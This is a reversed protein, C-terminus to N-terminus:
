PETRIALVADDAGDIRPALYARLPGRIQDFWLGADEPDADALLTLAQSVEACNAASLSNLRKAGNDLRQRAAVTATALFSNCLAQAWEQAAAPHEAMRALRFRACRVRLLAVDAPDVASVRNAETLAQELVKAAAGFDQRQELLSALAECAALATNTPGLEIRLGMLHRQLEVRNLGFAMLAEDSVRLLFELARCTRESREGIRELIMLARRSWRTEVRELRRGVAQWDTERDYDPKGPEFRPAEALNLLAQAERASSPCARHLIWAETQARRLAQPFKPELGWSPGDLADLLALTADVHALDPARAAKAAALAAGATDTLGSHLLSQVLECAGGDTANSDLQAYFPDSQDSLEKILAALMRLRGADHVDGLEDRWGSAWQRALYSIGDPSKAALGLLAAMGLRFVTRHQALVQTAARLPGLLSFLRHQAGPVCSPSLQVLKALQYVAETAAWPDHAALPEVYELLRLRPRAPNSDQCVRVLCEHTLLDFYGDLNLAYPDLRAMVPSLYRDQLCPPGDPERTPDAPAGDAPVRRALLVALDSRKLGRWSVSMLRAAREAVGVHGPTDLDARMSRLVHEFLPGPGDIVALETIQQKMRERDGHMRLEELMMRLFLPNGCSKSKAIQELSAEDLKKRFGDFFIETAQRIQAPSFPRLEIHEWDSTPPQASTALVLTRPLVEFARRLRALDLRGEAVHDLGDLLIVLTRPSDRLEERLRQALLGLVDGVRPTAGDTARTQTLPRLREKVKDDPRDPTEASRGEIPDLDTLEQAAWSNIDPHGKLGLYATRVTISGETSTRLQAAVDAVLASKGTAEDGRVHVFVAGARTPLGAALTMIQDDVTLNRVYATRLSRVYADEERLRRERASPVGSQPFLSDIAHLLFRRVADGFEEISAYGDVGVVGRERLRQKLANLKDPQGDRFDGAANGAVAALTDTLAPARLFLRSHTRAQAYKEFAYRMEIETVSIQARRALEIMAERGDADGTPSIKFQALESNNPIWGYREGLFGIFFPPFAACREIESLCIDYTFGTNALDDSIGWRLDIDTFTAARTRCFARVEPFVNTVLYAREAQMDKFTSSLFVRVERADSIHSM